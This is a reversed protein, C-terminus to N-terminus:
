RGNPVEWTGDDLIDKELVWVLEAGYPHFDLKRFRAFSYYSYGRFYETDRIFVDCSEPHGFRRHDMARHAQSHSFNPMRVHLVGYPQLIRWCAEVFAFADNVHELIDMAYVVAFAEHIFPWPHTDLDVVMDVIPTRRIDVNLIDEGFGTIGCGLNIGRIM